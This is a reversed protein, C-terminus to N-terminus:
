LGCMWQLWLYHDGWGNTPVPSVSADWTGLGYTSHNVAYANGQPGTLTRLNGGAATTRTVACNRGTNKDPFSHTSDCPSSYALYFASSWTVRTELKEFINNNNSYNLM